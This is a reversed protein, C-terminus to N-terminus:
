APVAGRWGDGRRRVKWVVPGYKAVLEGKFGYMVTCTVSEHNGRLMYVNHPLALKWACIIALTELGWAGRDVFDGNFVYTRQASPLGMLEMMNCVDHYQGHTDGVMTFTSDEGAPTLQPSCLSRRASLAPPRAPSLSARCLPQPSLPALRPNTPSGSRSVELLAPEATLLREVRDFIAVAVARPLVEKLAAAGVLSAANFRKQLDLVWQETVVQPLVVPELGAVGGGM